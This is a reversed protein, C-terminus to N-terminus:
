PKEKRPENEQREVAQGNTAETLKQDMVRTIAVYHNTLHKYSQLFFSYVFQTILCGAVFAAWASGTKYSQAALYVGFVGCGLWLLFEWIPMSRM